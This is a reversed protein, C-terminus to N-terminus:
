RCDPCMHVWEGDRQFVIWGEASRTNDATPFFGTGTDLEEGCEGDCVFVIDGKVRKLM